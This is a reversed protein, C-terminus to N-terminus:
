VGASYNGGGAGQPTVNKCKNQAWVLTLKNTESAGKLFRSVARFPELGNKKKKECSDASAISARHMGQDKQKRAGEM